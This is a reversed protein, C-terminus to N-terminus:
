IENVNHLMNVIDNNQLPLKIYLIDKLLKHTM